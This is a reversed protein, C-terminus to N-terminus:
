RFKSAGDIEGVKISDPSCGVKAATVAVIQERSVSDDLGVIRDNVDVDM